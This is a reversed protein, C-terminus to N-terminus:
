CINLGKIRNDVNLDFDKKEAKQGNIFVNKVVINEFSNQEDHSFIKMKLKPLGKEAYVNVNDITVDKVMGFIKPDVYKEILDSFQKVGVTYKHNDIWILYPM